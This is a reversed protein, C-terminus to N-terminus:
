CRPEVQELLLITSIALVSAPTGELVNFLINMLQGEGAQGKDVGDGSNARESDASRHATRRKAGGSDTRDPAAKLKERLTGSRIMEMVNDRPDRQARKQREIEERDTKKLM